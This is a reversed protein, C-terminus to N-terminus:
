KREKDIQKMKYQLNQRSIGLSVAAKSINDGSQKLAHQIELREMEFLYEDLKLSGRSSIERHVHSQSRLLEEVHSPLHERGIVHEDSVMNMASEIFNQLERVNGPWLYAKFWQLVEGSLMWVDKGLSGNFMRIFHDVLLQIDEVREKLTPINIYIVNL